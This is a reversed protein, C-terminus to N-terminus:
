ILESSVNVAIAHPPALVSDDVEYVFLAMLNGDEPDSMSFLHVPLGDSKLQLGSALTVGILGGVVIASYRRRSTRLRSSLANLYGRGRKISM